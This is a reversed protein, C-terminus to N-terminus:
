NFLNKCATVKDTGFYSHYFGSAYTDCYVDLFFQNVINRGNMSTSEGIENSPIKVFAFLACDSANTSQCTASLFEGPQLNFNAQYVVTPNGLNTNPYFYQTPACASSLVGGEISMRKLCINSANQNIFNESYMHYFAFGGVVRNVSTQYYAKSIKYAGGSYGMLQDVYPFRVIQYVNEGSVYPHYELSGNFLMNSADSVNYGVTALYIQTGAKIYLPVTSLDLIGSVNAGSGMRVAGSCYIESPGAIVLPISPSTERYLYVCVDYVSYKPVGSITWSIKTVVVDNDSSFSPGFPAYYTQGSKLIFSREPYNFIISQQLTSSILLLSLFLVLKKM